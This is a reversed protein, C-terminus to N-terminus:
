THTVSCSHTSTLAQVSKRQLSQAATDSRICHLKLCLGVSWKTQQKAAECTCRRYM